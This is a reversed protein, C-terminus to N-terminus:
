ASVAKLPMSRLCEYAEELTILGRELAITVALTLRYHDRSQHGKLYMERAVRRAGYFTVIGEPNKYEPEPHPPLWSVNM